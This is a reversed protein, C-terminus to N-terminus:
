ARGTQEATAPNPHVRAHARRVAAARGPPRADKGQDATVAPGQPGATPHHARLGRTRSVFPPFRPRRSGLPARTGPTLEVPGGGLDAFRTTAGIPPLDSSCVDSSWDSIRM